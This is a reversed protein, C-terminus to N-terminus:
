DFRKGYRKGYPEKLTERLYNQFSYRFSLLNYNKLDFVIIKIDTQSKGDIYSSL